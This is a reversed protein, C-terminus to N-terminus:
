AEPRVGYEVRANNGYPLQEHRVKHGCHDGPGFQGDGHRSLKQERIMLIVISGAADPVPHNVATWRSDGAALAHCIHLSDHVERPLLAQFNSDAAAAVIGTAQGYNIVPQNNIERCHVRDLDIRVGIKAWKEDKYQAPIEAASSPLDRVHGMSAEVRYEKPLFRRITKAKTPSEVVVLRKM